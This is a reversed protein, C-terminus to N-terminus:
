KIERFWFPFDKLVNNNVLVFEDDNIDSNILAKSLLIEQGKLKSKELM